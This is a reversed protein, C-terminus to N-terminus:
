WRGERTLLCSYTQSWAPMPAQDSFNLCCSGPFVTSPDGVQQVGYLASAQLCKRLLQPPLASMYDSALLQVSQFALSVCAGDEAEPVAELIRLIPEWGTSLQEGVFCDRQRSM